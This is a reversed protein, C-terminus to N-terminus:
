LAWEFFNLSVSSLQVTESIILERLSESECLTEVRFWLRSSKARQVEKHVKNEAEPTALNPSQNFSSICINFQGGHIVAGTFISVAQQGQQYDAASSASHVTTTPCESVQNRQMRNLKREQIKTKKTRSLNNWKILTQLGQLLSKPFAPFTTLM